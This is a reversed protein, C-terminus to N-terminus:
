PKQACHRRRIIGAMGVMGSTLLVKSSPEPAVNVQFPTGATGNLFDAGGNGTTDGLIWFTGTYSGPTAPTNITVDLIEGTFSGGNTLFLPTNLFFPTDDVVFPGPLSFSDENLYVTQGSNNTITGIIALTNGSVGTAPSISVSLLDAKAISVSLLIAAMVGALTLTMRIKTKM